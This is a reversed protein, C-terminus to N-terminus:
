PFLNHAIPPLKKTPETVRKGGNEDPLERSSSAESDIEANAITNTVVSGFAGERPEQANSAAHNLEDVVAIHKIASATIRFYEGGIQAEKWDKVAMELGNTTLSEVPNGSEAQAEIFREETGVPKPAFRTDEVANANAVITNCAGNCLSFLSIQERRKPAEFLSIQERKHPKTAPFQILLKEM